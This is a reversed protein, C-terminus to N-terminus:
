RKPGYITVSAKEWTKGRNKSLEATQTFGRDALAYRARLLRRDSVGHPIPHSFM